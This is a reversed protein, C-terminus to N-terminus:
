KQREAITRLRTIPDPLSVIEPIEPARERLAELTRTAAVYWTATLVRALAQQNLGEAAAYSEAIADALVQPIQGALKTLLRHEADAARWKRIDDVCVLTRNGRGNGQYAVPAGAGIWHRLRALTIGLARAAEPLPVPNM